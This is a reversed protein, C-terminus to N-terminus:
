VLLIDPREFCNSDSSKGYKQEFREQYVQEFTEFCDEVRFRCKLKSCMNHTLAKTPPYEMTFQSHGKGPQRKKPITTCEIVYASFVPQYQVSEVLSLYPGVHSYDATSPISIVQRKDPGTQL